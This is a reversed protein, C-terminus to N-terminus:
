MCYRMPVKDQENDQKLGERNPREQRDQERIRVRKSEKRGWRSNTRAWSSETFHRRARRDKRNTARVWNSETYVRVRRGARSMAWGRMSEWGKWRARCGGKNATIILNRGALGRRSATCGIRSLAWGKGADEARHV